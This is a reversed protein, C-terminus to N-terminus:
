NAGSMAGREVQHLHFCLPTANPGCGGGTMVIDARTVGLLDLETLVRWRLESRRLLDGEDIGSGAFLRIRQNFRFEARARPGLGRHRSLLRGDRYVEADYGGIQVRSEVQIATPDMGRGAVLAVGGKPGPSIRALTGPMVPVRPSHNGDCDGLGLQLENSFTFPHSWDNPCRKIVKWAVPREAGGAAGNTQFIIIDSRNMDYSRNIFNLKAKSCM